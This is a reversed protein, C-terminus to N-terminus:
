STPPCSRTWTGCRTSPTCSTTAAAWGEFHASENLLLTPPRICGSAGAGSWATPPDAALFDVTADPHLERLRRAIALDRQIHGLGIPSSLWLIRRQRQAAGAPRAAADGRRDEPPCPRAVRSPATSCSTASSGTSRSRTAAWLCHGGGEFAVLRAGPIAAAIKQAHKYPVVKDQTGHVILTPVAVKPLLAHINDKSPGSRSSSSRPRPRARGRSATRWARSRTRSPCCTQVPRAALRRLGRPHGAGGEGRVAGAASEAYQGALLILHSVGRRISWRTASRSCPQLLSFAPFAFPPRAAEDLVALMDGYRTALDYGTAPRDSRGNGRPDM